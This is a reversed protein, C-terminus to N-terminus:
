TISKALSSYEKAEFLDQTEKPINAENDMENQVATRDANPQIQASLLARYVESKMRSSGNATAYCWWHALEVPQWIHGHWLVAELM